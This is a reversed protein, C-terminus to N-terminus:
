ASCASALVVVGSWRIGGLARRAGPVLLRALAVFLLTYLLLSLLTSTDDLDRIYPTPYKVDLGNFLHRAYSASMAIPHELVLQLYRATARFRRDTSALSRRSTRRSSCASHQRTSTSCAPNHIATPPGVYTEYKQARMGTWTTVLHQESAIPISPSWTDHHRQNMLMQPLSAVFAGAIM